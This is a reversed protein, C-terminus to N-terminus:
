KDDKEESEVIEVLHRIRNKVRTKDVDEYGGNTIEDYLSITYNHIQDIDEDTIEENSKFNIM